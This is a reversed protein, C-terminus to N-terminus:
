WFGEVRAEYGPMRLIALISVKLPANLYLEVLITPFVYYVTLYMSIINSHFWYGSCIDGKAAGKAFKPRSRPTFM